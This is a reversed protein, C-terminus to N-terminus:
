SRVAEDTMATFADDLDIVAHGVAVHAPSGDTLDVLASKLLTRAEDMKRAARHEPSIGNIRLPTGDLGLRIRDSTSM